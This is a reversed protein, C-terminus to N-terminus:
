AMARKTFNGYITDVPSVVIFANHDVSRIVSLYESKEYTTIIIELTYTKKMSYAGVSDYITVGHPFLATLAQAMEINHNTVVAIKMFKYGTHIENLVLINIIMRIATYCCTALGQKLVLWGIIASAALNFADISLSVAAFNANKKFAFYQSLTDTGGGSAGFRLSLGGGVGTLAGGVIALALQDNAMSSFPNSATPIMELLWILITQIAISAVSLIAFRKSVGKFSVIFMPINIAIMFISTLGPITIISRVGEANTQVGYVILSIVSGIIQSIGSVGGSYFGGLEILFVIGISYIIAGTVMGFVAMINRKKHLQNLKVQDIM